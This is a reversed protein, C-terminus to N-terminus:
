ENITEVLITGETDVHATGENKEDMNNNLEKEGDSDEDIDVVSIEDVQITVITIGTKM